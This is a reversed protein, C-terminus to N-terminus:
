QCGKSMLLFGMAVPTIYTFFAVESVLNVAPQLVAPHM